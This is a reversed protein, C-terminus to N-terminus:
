KSDKAGKKTKIVIVSNGAEAGYNEVAANGKITTITKIDALKIARATESEVREGDVYFIYDVTDAQVETDVTMPVAALFMSLLITLM